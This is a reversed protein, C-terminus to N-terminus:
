HQDAVDPNVRRLGSYAVIYSITALLICGAELAVIRGFNDSDGLFFGAIAPGAATLRKYSRPWHSSQREEVAM